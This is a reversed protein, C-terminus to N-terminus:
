SRPEEVNHLPYAQGVALHASQMILMRVVDVIIDTSQLSSTILCTTYSVMPNSQKHCRTDWLVLHWFLKPPPQKSLNYLLNYRAMSIVVCLLLHLFQSYM